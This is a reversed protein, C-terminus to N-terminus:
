GEEERSNGLETKALVRKVSCFKNAYTVNIKFICIYYCQKYHMDIITNVFRKTTTSFFLAAFIALTSIEVVLAARTEAFLTANNQVLLTANEVM